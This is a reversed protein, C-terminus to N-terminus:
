KSPRWAKPGRRMKGEPIGNAYKELWPKVAQFLNESTRNVFPVEGNEVTQDKHDVQIDIVDEDSNDPTFFVTMKRHYLHYAFYGPFVYEFEWRGFLQHDARIAEALESSDDAM